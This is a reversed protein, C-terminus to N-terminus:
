GLFISNKNGRRQMLVRNSNRAFFDLVHRRPRPIPQDRAFMELQCVRPVRADEGSRTEAGRRKKWKKTTRRAEKPAFKRGGTDNSVAAAFCSSVAVRNWGRVDSGELRLKGRKEAGWGAFENSDLLFPYFPSSPKARSSFDHEIISHQRTCLLSFFIFFNNTSNVDFNYM